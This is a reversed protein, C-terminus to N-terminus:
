SGPLYSVGVNFLTCSDDVRDSQEDPFATNKRCTFRNLVGAGVIFRGVQGNFGLGFGFGARNADRNDDFSASTLLDLKKTLPMRVFLKGLFHNQNFPSLLEAEFGVTTKNLHAAYASVGLAIIDEMYETKSSYSVGSKFLDGTLTLGSHWAFETGSVSWLAASDPVLFHQSNFYYDYDADVVRAGGSFGASLPGYVVGSVSGMFETQCGEATLVVIGNEVEHMGEYGFEVIKAVGAGITIRGAPYVIAAMGNNNSMLTRTVNEVDSEIVRETWSASSGTVQISFPILATQAPNMFIGAPESIGVARLSGLATTQPSIGPLISGKTVSDYYGFGYAHAHLMCIIVSLILIHKM